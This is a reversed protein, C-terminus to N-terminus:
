ETYMHKNLYMTGSIFCDVSEADASDIDRSAYLTLSVYEGDGFSNCYKGICASVINASSEYDIPGSGSTHLPEMNGTLITAKSLTGNAIDATLRFTADNSGGPAHRARCSVYQVIATKNEDIVFTDTDAAFGGEDEWSASLVIQFPVASMYGIKLPGSASASLCPVAILVILLIIRRIM